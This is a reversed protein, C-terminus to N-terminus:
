HGRSRLLRGALVRLLVPKGRLRQSVAPAAQREAVAIVETPHRGYTRPFLETALARDEPSRDYEIPLDDPGLPRESEPAAIRRPRHAPAGYLHPLAFRESETSM